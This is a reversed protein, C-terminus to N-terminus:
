NLWSWVGIAIFNDILSVFLMIGGVVLDEKGANKLCITFGPENPDGDGFVMLFVFIGWLM